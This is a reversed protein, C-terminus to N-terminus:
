RFESLFREADMAAMCGSGASTVAQRYHYDAVDGAGFIGPVSTQTNNTLRLYGHSDLDLKNQFIKTNPSLGIAIFIGLAPIKEVTGTETDKIKLGTVRNDDGIIETVMKKYLIKIASNNLVREQMTASATLKDLLHVITINNTYKSMFSADEMATDGGGIITVPMDRYFTGDCVACTSVGKGWYENEGPCGLRKPTAGTAIIVAHAKFSGYSKTVLTFPRRTVEIDIVEDAIFSCGSQQAHERMRVMLEPGLIRQDGPWNEVFSTGILQGGPQSGEIILPNLNARSAYIGATLGAPGSGIIILPYEATTSM